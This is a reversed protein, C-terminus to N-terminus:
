TNGFPTCQRASDQHIPYCCMCLCVVHVHLQIHAMDESECLLSSQFSRLTLMSCGAEFHLVTFARLVRFLGYFRVVSCPPQTCCIIAQISTSGFTNRKQFHHTACIICTNTHARPPRTPIVRPPLLFHTSPRSLTASLHTDVAWLKCWFLFFSGSCKIRRRRLVVWLVDIPSHHAPPPPRHAHHVNSLIACVAAQRNVFYPSSCLAVGRTAFCAPFREM